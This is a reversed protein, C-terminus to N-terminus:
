IFGPSKTTIAKRLDKDSLTLQCNRLVEDNLEQSMPKKCHKRFALFCFERQRTLWM